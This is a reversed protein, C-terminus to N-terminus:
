GHVIKPPIDNSLQAHVRDWHGNKWAKAQSPFKAFPISDISLGDELHNFEFDGKDNKCYWLTVTKV